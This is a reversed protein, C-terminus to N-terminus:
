SLLRSPRFSMARTSNSTFAQRNGNALDEAVASAYVYNISILEARRAAVSDQIQYAALILTVIAMAIGTSLVVLNRIRRGISIDQNDM